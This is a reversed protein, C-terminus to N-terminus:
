FATSMTLITPYEVSMESCWEMLAAEVFRLGFSVMLCVFVNM